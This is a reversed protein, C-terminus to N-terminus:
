FITRKFHSPDVRWGGRRGNARPGTPAATPLPEGGDALTIGVAPPSRRSRTADAAAREALDRLAARAVIALFVVCAVGLGINVLTLRTTDRDFLDM